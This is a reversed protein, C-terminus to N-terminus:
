PQLGFPNKEFLQRGGRQHYSRVYADTTTEYRSITGPVVEPEPSWNDDYRYQNFSADVVDLNVLDAAIVYSPLNRGLALTRGGAESGVAAHLNALARTQYSAIGTRAFVLAEALTHVDNNSDQDAINPTGASADAYKVLNTWAPGSTPLARIADASILVSPTSASARAFPLVAAVGILVM